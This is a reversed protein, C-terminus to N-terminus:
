QTKKKTFAYIRMEMRGTDLDIEGFGDTSDIIRENFLGSERNANVLNRLMWVDSHAYFVGDDKLLKYIAQLTTNCNSIENGASDSLGAVYYEWIMVDMSKPALGSNEVMENIIIDADDSIYGFKKGESIGESDPEIITMREDIDGIINKLFSVEHGTAAGVFAIKKRLFDGHNEQFDNVIKETMSHRERHAYALYEASFYGELVDAGHVSDLCLCNIIMSFVLIWNRM